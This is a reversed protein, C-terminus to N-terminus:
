LQQRQICLKVMKPLPMPRILQLSASPIQTAPQIILPAQKKNNDLENKPHNPIRTRGSLTTWTQCKIHSSQQATQLHFIIWSILCKKHRYKHKSSVQTIHSQSLDLTTTIIVIGMIATYLVPQILVIITPTKRLRNVWLASNPEVITITSNSYNTM